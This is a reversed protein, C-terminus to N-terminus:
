GNPMGMQPQQPALTQLHDQAQALGLLHNGIVTRLQQEDEPLNAIEEILQHQLEPTHFAGKSVLDAASKVVDERTLKGIPKGALSLLSDFISNVHNRMALHEQPSMKAQEMAGAEAGQPAGQAMQSLLMNGPVGM